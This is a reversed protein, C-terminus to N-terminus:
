MGREKETKLHAVAGRVTVMGVNGQLPVHRLRHHGDDLAEKAGLERHVVGVQLYEQSLPSGQVHANLYRGRAM